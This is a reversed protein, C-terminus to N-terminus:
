VVETESQIGAVQHTKNERQEWQDPSARPLESVTYSHCCPSKASVSVAVQIRVSVILLLIPQQCECSRGAGKM